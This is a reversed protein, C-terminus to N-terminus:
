SGPIKQPKSPKIARPYITPDKVFGTLALPAIDFNATKAECDIPKPTYAARGIYELYEVNTRRMRIWVQIKHTAELFLKKDQPRM